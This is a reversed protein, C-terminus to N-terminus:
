ADRRGELKDIRAALIFDNESLGGLSHTWITVEVRGFQVCFDPHHRQEEALAAMRNVFAMAAVFDEFGFAKHLKEDRLEWGTLQALLTNAQAPELRCAGDGPVCHLQNLEM